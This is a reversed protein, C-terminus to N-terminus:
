SERPRPASWSGTNFDDGEEPLRMTRFAEEAAYHALTIEEVGEARLRHAKNRAQKITKKLATRKQKDSLM